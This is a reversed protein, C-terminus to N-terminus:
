FTLPTIHHSLIKVSDGSLAGGLRVVINHDDQRAHQGHGQESERVSRLHARATRYDAAGDDVWGVLSGSKECGRSTNTRTKALQAFGEGEGAALTRAAADGSCITFTEACGGDKSARTIPLRRLMEPDLHAYGLRDAVSSPMAACTGGGHAVAKPIESSPAVRALLDSTGDSSVIM